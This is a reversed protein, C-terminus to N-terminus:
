EPKSLNNIQSLENKLIHNYTALNSNKQKLSKVLGRLYEVQSIERVENGYCIGRFSEKDIVSGEAIISGDCDIVEMTETNSDVSLMIGANKCEKLDPATIKFYGGASIREYFDEDETTFINPKDEVSPKTFEPESPITYNRNQKLINLKQDSVYLKSRLDVVDSGLDMCRDTLQKNEVRLEECELKKNRYLDYLINDDVRELNCECIIDELVDQSTIGQIYGIKCIHVRYANEVSKRVTLLVEPKVSVKDIRTEETTLYTGSLDVPTRKMSSEGCPKMRFLYATDPTLIATESPKYQGAQFVKGLEVWASSPVEPKENNSM